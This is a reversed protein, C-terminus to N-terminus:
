LANEQLASIVRSAGEGDVLRQARRSMDQRRAFDDSMCSIAKVLDSENVSSHWGLNVAVGASSLSTAVQEQNEALVLVISPLGMFATEWCTSGAGTVAMDAWAMVGPMDSVSPELRITSRLSILRLTESDVSDAESLILVDMGKLQLIANAIKLCAERTEGGGLSVLVKKAFRPMERRFGRWKLFETRLLAYRTGLLLRTYPERHVYDREQCHLNQNLVIDAYYYEHHAMDDVLLLRAGEEKSMRQFSTNFDYGDAVVWTASVLRRLKATERADDSGGPQVTLHVVEVGETKLRKEVTPLVTAMALVAHGGINKWAQALALCRM